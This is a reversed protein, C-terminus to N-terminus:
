GGETAEADGGVCEGPAQHRPPRAPVADAKWELARHRRGRGREGGAQRDELREAADILFQLLVQERKELEVVFRQLDDKGGGAAAIGGEDEGAIQGGTEGVACHLDHDSGIRRDGIGLDGQQLAHQRVGAMLHHQEAVTVHTQGAVLHCAHQRQKGIGPHSHHILRHHSAPFARNWRRDLIEVVGFIGGKERDADVFENALVGDVGLPLPRPPRGQLGAATKGSHTIAPSIVIAQRLLHLPRAPSQRRRRHHRPHHLTIPRPAAQPRAIKAM